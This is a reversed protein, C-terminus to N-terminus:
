QIRPSVATTLTSVACLQGGFSQSPCSDNTLNSPKGYVITLTIEYSDSNVQVINFQELSLYQSLLEHTSNGGGTANSLYHTYKLGTPDSSLNAPCSGTLELLAHYVPSSSSPNIEQGRQYIYVDNGLCYYGYNEYPTGLVIQSPSNFQIDQSITSLVNRTIDQTQAQVNGKVFSNNVMIIAVIAILLVVSFVATAIMLEVITFGRQLKPSLYQRHYITM